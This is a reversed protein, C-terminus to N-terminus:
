WGSAPLSSQVPREETLLMKNGGKSHDRASSVFHHRQGFLYWKPPLLRLSVLPLVQKNANFRQVERDSQWFKVLQKM